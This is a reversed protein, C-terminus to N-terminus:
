RCLKECPVGDGDGDLTTVRCSNLFYLAEECTAMQRCLRMAGCQGASSRDMGISSLDTAANLTESPPSGRNRKAARWDWPAMIQDAQLGWLGRRAQRAEAEWGIYRQDSLYRRYAWAGGQKVMEANINIGDRSLVAVSRGYRDIDTVRASIFQGFVLESLMRKSARGYPQGSEPADIEGLRIKYQQRGDVLLRITDGDTVGVVKGQLTEALAHPSLLMAALIAFAIQSIAL